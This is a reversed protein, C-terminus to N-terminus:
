RFLRRLKARVVEYREKTLIYEQNYVDEQGPSMKYGWFLNFDIARKNDRLIHTIMRELGLTDFAFDMLCLSSRFSYDSNLYDDDWIFIGPIGEKKEFDVDRVNTLGIEKGGVEIIFFFDKGSTSIKQYWREQMEPTIMERFEMYQSIKPDNRWRRVMEIKDHTLQRLVVSYDQLIILREM